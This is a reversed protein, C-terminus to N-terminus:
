VNKKPRGVTKTHNCKELNNYRTLAQNKITESNNEYYTKFYSKKYYKKNRCSICHRGIEKPFKTKIDKEENCTLCLKTKKIEIENILEM